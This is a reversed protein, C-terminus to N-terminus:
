DAMKVGNLIRMVDRVDRTTRVLTPGAFVAYLADTWGRVRVRINGRSFCVKGYIENVPDDPRNDDIPNPLPTIPEDNEFRYLRM